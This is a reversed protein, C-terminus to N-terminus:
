DATLGTVVGNEIIVAQNEQDRKSISDEITMASYDM